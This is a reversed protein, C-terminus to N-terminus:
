WIQSVAFASAAFLALALVAEALSFGGRRRFFVPNGRLAFGRRAAGGSEGGGTIM